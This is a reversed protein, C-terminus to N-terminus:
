RDFSWPIWFGTPEAAIRAVYLWSLLAAQAAWSVVWEEMLRRSLALYPLLLRRKVQQYGVFSVIRLLIM